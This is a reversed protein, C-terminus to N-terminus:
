VKFSGLFDKKKQENQKVLVCLASFAWECGRSEM